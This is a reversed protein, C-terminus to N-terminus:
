SSTLSAYLNLYAQTIGERSHSRKVEALGAQGIAHRTGEDTTLAEIIGDALSKPDGVKTLWGDVGDRMYESPGQSRTSVVPKAHAWAELVVNGLPEHVSSCVFLDAAAYYAGPKKVWGTFHVAHALGLECTLQELKTRDAGDGVIVTRVENLGNTARVLAMARLLDPVGKNPHLRGVFLVLPVGPEIGLEARILSGRDLDAATPLDVFNGIHHVKNAPMGGRVLHDCIGHANGVWADAHRYGAVDYYGGLRAVHVAGSRRPARFIRTARGMYTQVVSASSTQTLKGLQWRALRDWVGRMRVHCQPAHEGIEEAVASGLQNVALATHGSENLARVLRAYFREAGGLPRSGIIHLSDIAHGSSM